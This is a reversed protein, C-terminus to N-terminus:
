AFSVLRMRKDQYMRADALTMLSAATGDGEFFNVVGISLGLSSFGEARLDNEIANVRLRLDESELEGSRPFIQVMEDGGLRFVPCDEGGLHALRTAVEKLARDGEEHGMTDNIHKFGDFDILMLASNRMATSDFMSLVNDESVEQEYDELCRGLFADFARRNGMGTVVDTNAANIAAHMKQRANGAEFYPGYLAALEQLLTVQETLNSPVEEHGLLAYGVCEDHHNKLALGIVHRCGAGTLQESNLFLEDLQDTAALRRCPYSGPKPHLTPLCGKDLHDGDYCHDFRIEKRVTDLQGIAIWRADLHQRLVHMAALQAPVGQAQERAFDERLQEIDEGLRADYKCILIKNPGLQSCNIQWGELTAKQAITQSDECLCDSKKNCCLDTISEKLHDPVRDMQANSYLCTGDGDVVAIADSLLDFVSFIDGEPALNNGTM